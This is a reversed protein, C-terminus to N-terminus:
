NAKRECQGCDEAPKDCIPYYEDKSATPLLNTDNCSDGKIDTYCDHCFEDGGDKINAQNCKGCMKQPACIWTKM